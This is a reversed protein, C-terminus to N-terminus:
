APPACPKLPPSVPAADDRMTGAYGDSVIAFAQQLWPPHLDPTQILFGQMGQAGSHQVAQLEEETEIGEVVVCPCLVACAAVLKRLMDPPHGSDMAHMLLSRDMKVMDAHSRALFALTSYGAGMDDIAVLVGSARLQAVLAFAAVTDTLTSTETIELM